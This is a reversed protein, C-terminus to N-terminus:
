FPIDGFEPATPFGAPLQQPVSRTPQQGAVIQAETTQGAFMPSAPAAVAAMPASPRAQTTASGAQPPPPAASDPRVVPAGTQALVGRSVRAVRTRDAVAVNQGTAEDLVMRGGASITDGARFGATPGLLIRVLESDHVEVAARSKVPGRGGILMRLGAEIPYIRVITGVVVFTNEIM